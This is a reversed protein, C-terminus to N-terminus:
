LSLEADGVVPIPTDWDIRQRLPLSLSSSATLSLYYSTPVRSRDRGNGVESKRGRREIKVRQDRNHKKLLYKCQSKLKKM